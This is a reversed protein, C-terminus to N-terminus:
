VGSVRLTAPYESIGTITFSQYSYGGAQQPLEYSEIVMEQIGLQNLFPCTIVISVPADLMRKLNMLSDTPIQGNYTTLTGQISVTYDDLGVYEKITGDRGQIQTKVIQKNQSVSILATYLDVANFSVIQGPQQGHYKGAEFRIAVPPSNLIM